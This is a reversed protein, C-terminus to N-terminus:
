IEAKTTHISLIIWANAITAIGAVASACRMAGATPAIVALATAPDKQVALRPLGREMVTGFSPGSKKQKTSARVLLSM